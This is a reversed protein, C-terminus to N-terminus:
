KGTKPRTLKVGQTLPARDEIAHAASRAMKVGKLLNLVNHDNQERAVVELPALVAWMSDIQVRWAAGAAQDMVRRGSM